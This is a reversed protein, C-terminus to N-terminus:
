FLAHLVKKIMASFLCFFSTMQITNLKSYICNEILSNEERGVLKTLQICFSFENYHSPFVLFFGLLFVLWFKYEHWFLVSCYKKEGCKHGKDKKNTKM